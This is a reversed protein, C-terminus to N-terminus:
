SAVESRYGTSSAESIVARSIAALNVRSGALETSILGNRFILVRDSLVALEDFDSSSVVISMGAGAMARIHRHLDAKAGVDVGQTPEDLLLVTPQRRAWKAFLVKQQNGGSFSSLPLEAGDRPRVDFEEFADRTAAVEPRRHLRLGSYFKRLHTLSLNERATLSM